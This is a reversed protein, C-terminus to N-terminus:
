RQRKAAASREGTGGALPESSVVRVSPQVGLRRLSGLSARLVAAWAPARAAPQTRHWEFREFEPALLAELARIEDESLLGAHRGIPSASVERHAEGFSSNGSWPRGALTPQLLTPNWAIGLFDAVSRMVPEPAQVLDEYRLMLCRQPHRSSFAEWAALSARMRRALTRVPFRRGRQRRKARFSAGVDRPDRLLYVAVLEPWLGLATDLHHEHLPTKEAWYRAPSAGAAAAYALMVAPLLERLRRPVALQERLEREFVAGDIGAFDQGHALATARDRSLRGVRTHALLREASHLSRRRHIARFYKTEEPFSVVEPHGDLLSVL